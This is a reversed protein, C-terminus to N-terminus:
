RFVHAYIQMHDCKDIVRMTKPGPLSEAFAVFTDMSCFQDNEGILLLKPRGSSSAELIREKLAAINFMYLAWAYDLPPAIAAFGIVDPIDAVAASAPVSGYSYGVVILKQPRQAEPLEHLLYNACFRVDDM